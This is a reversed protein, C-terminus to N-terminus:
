GPLDITTIRFDASLYPIFSTFAGSNMGWGHIFVLDKGTGQTRTVLPTNTHLDKM